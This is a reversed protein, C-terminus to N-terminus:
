DCGGIDQCRRTRLAPLSNFVCASPRTARCELTWERRIELVEVGVDCDRADPLPAESVVSVKLTAADADEVTASIVAEEEPALSATFVEAESRTDFVSIGAQPTRGMCSEVMPLHALYRHDRSGFSHVDGELVAIKRLDAGDVYVHTAFHSSGGDIGLDSHPEDIFTQRLFLYPASTEEGYVELSSADEQENFAAILSDFEQRSLREPEDPFQDAVVPCAVGLTLWLLLASGRSPRNM